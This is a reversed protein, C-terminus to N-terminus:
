RHAGSQRRRTWALRIGALMLALGGAALGASHHPDDAQGASIGTPIAATATPRVPNANSTSRALAANRTTRAPATVWTLVPATPATTRASASSTVLPKTGVTTVVTASAAPTTPNAAATTLASATAPTSPTTSTSPTAAAAHILPEAVRLDVPGANTAISRYHTQSTEVVPVWDGGALQLTVSEVPLNYGAPAATETATITIDDLGVVRVAPTSGSADTTLETIPAGAVDTLRDTADSALSFHAGAVPLHTAADDQSLTFRRAQIQAAPTSAAAVSATAAPADAPAASAVGSAFMLGVPLTVAAAASTLGRVAASRVM